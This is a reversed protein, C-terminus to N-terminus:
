RWDNTVQERELQAIREKLQQNEQMLAEITAELEAKKMYIAGGLIRFHVRGFYFNQKQRIRENSICGRLEGDFKGV